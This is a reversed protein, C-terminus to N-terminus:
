NKILKMKEPRSLKKIIIERKLAASRTEQKEYYLIEKVKFAKTFHGGKGAQHEKLRREIDKTIGTYLRGDECELIYVFWM